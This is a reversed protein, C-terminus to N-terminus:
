LVADKGGIFREMACACTVPVLAQAFPLFIRVEDMCGVVLWLVVYIASWVALAAGAADASWRRRSLLTVLWAWPLM